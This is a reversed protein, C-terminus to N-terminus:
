DTIGLPSHLLIVDSHHPSSKKLGCRGLPLDKGRIPIEQFPGKPLGQLLEGLAKVPAPTLVRARARMCLCVRM